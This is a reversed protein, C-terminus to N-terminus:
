GDLREPISAWDVDEDEGGASGGDDGDESSLEEHGSNDPGAIDEGHGGESTMEELGGNDPDDEDEGGATTEEGGDESDTEEPGSKDLGATDEDYDYAYGKEGYEYDDQDEGQSSASGDNEAQDEEDSMLADIYKEPDHKTLEHMERKVPRLEKSIDTKMDDFQQRLDRFTRLAIKAFDPFKEPGIVVLAIGAILIIEGFGMGLM